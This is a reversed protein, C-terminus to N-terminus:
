QHVKNVRMARASARTLGPFAVALNAMLWAGVPREILHMAQQAVALPRALGPLFSDHFSNPTQGSLVARAVVQGSALALSIGEGSLSAIVGAQDGVRYVQAAPSSRYRWGYPVNAIAGGHHIHTANHLRGALSPLEAELSQLLATPQKGCEDFRSQRVALCLNARSDEQLALGAYGGRFCHLEIVGDLQRMLAPSLTLRWRLGIIPDSHRTERLHGRLEHKGTALVIREAAIVRGDACRARGEDIGRVHVGREIRAGLREAHALLAADLVGRSLSAAPSPLNSRAERNGAILSLQTVRRAGLGFVDVGLRELRCLATWSLFGGCLPDSQQAEREILLPNSGAAALEIATAAGAPGGGVILTDPHRM